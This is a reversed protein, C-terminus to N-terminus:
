RPWPKQELMKLTIPALDQELMKLAEPIDAFPFQNTLRYMSITDDAVTWVAVMYKGAAKAKGLEDATKDRVRKM